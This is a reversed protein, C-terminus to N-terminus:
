LHRWRLDNRLQEECSANVDRQKGVYTGAVVGFRGLVNAVPEFAHISLGFLDVTVESVRGVRCVDVEHEVRRHRDNQLFVEFLSSDVSQVSSM